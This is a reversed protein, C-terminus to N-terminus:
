VQKRYRITEFIALSLIISGGLLTTWAPIEALFVFAFIVGYIPQITAILSATQAKISKLSVVFLTHPVLAFVWSLTFLQAWDWADFQAFSLRPLALPILLVAAVVVQYFMQSLGSVEQLRYRSVLNRSAFFFAGAVGWLIGQVGQNNLDFEPAMIILAIFMIIGMLLHLRSLKEKSVMPELLITIIPYTYLALMALSVDTTQVATFFFVLHATMLLGSLFAWGWLRRPLVYSQGTAYGYALLGAVGLLSRVWILVDAPLPIVKAFLPTMAWLLIAINLLILPNRM